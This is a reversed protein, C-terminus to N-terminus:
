VKVTVWDSGKESLSYALITGDKTYSRQRVFTTGDHSLANPDLFVEGDSKYDNAIYLVSDPPPSTRSPRPASM